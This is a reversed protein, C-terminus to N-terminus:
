QVFGFTVTRNYAKGYYSGTVRNTWAEPDNIVPMFMLPGQDDNISPLIVGKMDENLLLFHWYEMQEKYISDRGIRSYDYCKWFTTEKLDRRMVFVLIMCIVIGPILLCKETKEAVLHLRRAIQQALVIVTGALALLLVQFNTNQVGQSVDVGAYIEPAYMACHLCYLALVIWIGHSIYPLNRERLFVALCIVFLLLLGVFVLPKELFHRTIDTTGRVFSQIITAIIKGFSFGFEEGARNKNGPAKMSIILGVSSLIM